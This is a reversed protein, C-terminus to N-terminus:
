GVVRVRVRRTSENGAADRALVRVTAVVRRKRALAARLRRSGSRSTRIRLVVTRGAAADSSV